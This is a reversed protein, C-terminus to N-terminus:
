PALVLITSRYQSRVVFNAVWRSVLLRPEFSSLIPFISSFEELASCHPVPSSSFSMFVSLDLFSLLM